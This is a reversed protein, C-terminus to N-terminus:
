GIAQHLPTFESENAGSVKIGIDILLQVIEVDGTLVCSHLAMATLGDKPDTIEMSAGVEIFQRVV